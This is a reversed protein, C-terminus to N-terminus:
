TLPEVQEVPQKKKLPSLVVVAVEMFSCLLVQQVGGIFLCSYQLSPVPNDKNDM